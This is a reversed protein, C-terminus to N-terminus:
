RDKPPQRLWALRPGGELLDLAAVAGPKVEQEKGGALAVAEAVEPNHGVLAVGGGAARALALLARGSSRGSSLEEEEELSAGAAAAVLEATERARTLPSTLVRRVALSRGLEALLRGFRERGEATLRRAADGQPHDKEAKAHRVLFVRARERPAAKM